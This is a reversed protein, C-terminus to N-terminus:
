NPVHTNIAIPRIIDMKMEHTFLKDQKILGKDLSHSHFCYM